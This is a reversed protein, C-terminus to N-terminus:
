RDDGHWPGVRRREGGAEEDDLLSAFSMSPAGYRAAIADAARDLAQWREGV